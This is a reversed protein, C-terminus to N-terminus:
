HTADVVCCWRMCEWSVEEKYEDKDADQAEVRCRVPMHLLTLWAFVNNQQDLPIEYDGWNYEVQAQVQNIFVATPCGGPVGNPM